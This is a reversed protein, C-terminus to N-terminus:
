FPQDSLLVGSVKGASLYIRGVLASYLRRKTELGIIEEDLWFERSSFYQIVISDNETKQQNITLASRKLTELQARKELILPELGAMSLAELTSIESELRSMEPTQEQAETSKARIGANIEAAKSILADIVASEILNIQVTQRNDCAIAAAPDMRLRTRDKIWQSCQYSLTLKKTTGNARRTGGGVVSCPKGCNACFVKKYFINEKSYAGTKKAPSKQTVLFRIHEQVEPTIIGSRRWNQWPEGEEPHVIASCLLPNLLWNRYGAYSFQILSSQWSKTRVMSDIEAPSIENPASSSLVGRGHGIKACIGFHNHYAAIASSITGHELILLILKVAIDYKSYDRRGSLHSQFSLVTNSVPSPEAAQGDGPFAEPQLLSLFPATDLEARGKKLRYGFCARKLLGHQKEYDANRQTRKQIRSWEYEGGAAAIMALLKGAETTLDVRMNIAILPIGFSRCKKIILDLLGANVSLREVDPTYVKTVTGSDIAAILAQIGPRDELPATRSVVDYFLRKAGVESLAKLHKQLQYRHEEREEVSIRVTGVEM